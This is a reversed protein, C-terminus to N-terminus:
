TKQEKTLFYQVHILINPRPPLSTPSLTPQFPHHYIITRINSKSRLLRKPQCDKTECSYEALQNLHRADKQYIFFLIFYLHLLDM